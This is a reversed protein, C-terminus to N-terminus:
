NLYQPNDMQTFQPAAPKPLKHRYAADAPNHAMPLPLNLQRSSANIM